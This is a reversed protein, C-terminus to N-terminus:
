KWGPYLGFFPSRETRQRRQPRTIYIDTYEGSDANYLELLTRYKDVQRPTLYITEMEGDDNVIDITYYDGAYVMGSFLLVILFIFIRM